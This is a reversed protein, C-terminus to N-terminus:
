ASHFMADPELDPFRRAQRKSVNQRAGANWVARPVVWWGKTSELAM